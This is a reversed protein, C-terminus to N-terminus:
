IAQMFMDPSLVSVALTTAIVLLFGALLRQKTALGTVLMTLFGGGNSVIGMLAIGLPFEDGVFGSFASAYGVLLAIIALGYLRIYPIAVEEIGLRKLLLARPLLLMPLGVLLGTVAIKVILVIDLLTM